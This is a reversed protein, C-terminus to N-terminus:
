QAVTKEEQETPERNERWGPPNMRTTMREEIAWDLGKLIAQVLLNRTEDSGDSTYSGDDGVSCYSGNLLYLAIRLFDQETEEGIDEDIEVTIMNKVKM